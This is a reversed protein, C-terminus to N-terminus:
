PEAIVFPRGAPLLTMGDETWPTTSADQIATAWIDGTPRAQFDQAPDGVTRQYFVLTGDASWSPDHNDTGWEADTLATVAKSESSVLMLDIKYKPDGWWYHHRMEFVIQSADPSWAPNAATLLDDEPMPIEVLAGISEGDSDWLWLGVWKEATLAGVIQDGKPSWDLGTLVTGAPLELTSLYQGDVTYLAGSFHTEVANEATLTWTYFTGALLQQDPSLSAQKWGHGKPELALTVPDFGSETGTIVASAELLTTGQQYVARAWRAGVPVGTLAFSGDQQTTIPSGAGQAYVLAPGPANEVKGRLPAYPGPATEPDQYEGTLMRLGTGDARIMFVNRENDRSALYNHASVFVLWQGDYSWSVDGVNLPEAFHTLPQEDEELDDRLMINAALDQSVRVYALSPGASAPRLTPTASPRPTATLTATPLVPTLTPTQTATPAKATLTAGLQAAVKTELAPYDPTPSPAGSGIVACACLAVAAFLAALLRPLLYRRRM